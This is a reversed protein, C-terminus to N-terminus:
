DSVRRKAPHERGELSRSQVRFSEPRNRRRFFFVGKNSEFLNLIKDRITM